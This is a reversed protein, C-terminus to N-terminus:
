RSPIRCTSAARSCSPQSITSCSALMPGGDSAAAIPRRTRAAENRRDLLGTRPPSMRLTAHLDCEKSGAPDSAQVRAEQAVGIADVRDHEAVDVRCSGRLDCTLRPDLGSRRDVRGEVASVRDHDGGGRGGMGLQDALGDAAPHWGEALLRKGAAEVLHDRDGALDVPGADWELEPELAAEVRTIPLGM